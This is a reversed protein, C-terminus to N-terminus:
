MVAALGSLGFTRAGGAPRILQVPAPQGVTVGDGHGVRWSGTLDNGRVIRDLATAGAAASTTAPETSAWPPSVNMFASGVSTIGPSSTAM